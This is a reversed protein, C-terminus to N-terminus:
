RVGELYNYIGRGIGEGPPTDPSFTRTMQVISNGLRKAKAESTAYRVVLALGIDDDVQSISADLVM